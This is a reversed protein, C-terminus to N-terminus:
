FARKIAVLRPRKKVEMREDAEDEELARKLVKNGKPVEKGKPTEPLQKGKPVEKGKPTDPLQKGKPVEKGKPTEPLQKGKPVEKGKLVKNGKPVEKGKPTDPLQKGKPVEKGKPPVEVSSSTEGAWKYIALKWLRVQKDWSRRTHNTYKNPTRPHAKKNRSWKPVQSLYHKYTLKEKMRNLDKDRRQLTVLDNCWGKKPESWGERPSPLLKSFPTNGGASQSGIAAANEKFSPSSDDVQEIKQPQQEAEEARRSNQVEALKTRLANQLM